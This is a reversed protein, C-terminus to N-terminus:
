HTSVITGKIKLAVAVSSSTTLRAEIFLRDPTYSEDYNVSIDIGPSGSTASTGGITADSVNVQTINLAGSYYIDGSSDSASIVLQAAMAGNGTVGSPFLDYVQQYTGTLTVNTSVNIDYAGGGGTNDPSWVSNGAGDSKPIYGATATGTAIRAPPVQGTALDSADLHTLGSGNGQFYVSIVGEDSLSVAGAGFYGNGNPLVRSNANSTWSSAISWQLGTLGSGDGGLKKGSVASVTTGDYYLIPAGATHDYIPYEGTATRLQGRFGTGAEFVPAVVTPYFVMKGDLDIRQYPSGLTNVFLNLDPAAVFPPVQDMSMPTWKTGDWGLGFGVSPTAFAAVPHTQWNTLWGTLTGPDASADIQPVWNTGDFKIVDGPNAGSTPLNTLAVQLPSWYGSTSSLYRLYYGPAPTNAGLRAPLIYGSLNTSQLNTLGAGNALIDGNYIRWTKGTLFDTYLLGGAAPSMSADEGFYLSALGDKLEVSGYLTAGSRINPGWITPSNTNAKTAILGRLDESLQNTAYFILANFINTAIESTIGNTNAVLSNIQNQLDTIANTDAKRSVRILLSLINTNLKQFATFASDPFTGDSPLYYTAPDLTQTVNTIPIDAAHTSPVFSVFLVLALALTIRNIM